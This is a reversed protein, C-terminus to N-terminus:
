YAIEIGSGEGRPRMAEAAISCLECYASVKCDRGWQSINQM